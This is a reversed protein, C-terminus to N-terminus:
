PPKPIKLGWFIATTFACVFQVEPKHSNFNVHKTQADFLSRLIPDQWFNSYKYFGCIQSWGLTSQKSEQLKCVFVGCCYKQTLFHMKCPKSIKQSRPNSLSIKQETMLNDSNSTYLYEQGIINTTSCGLSRFLM